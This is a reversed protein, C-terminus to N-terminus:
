RLKEYLLSWELLAIVVSLGGEKRDIEFEVNVWSLLGDRIVELGEIRKEISRGLLGL